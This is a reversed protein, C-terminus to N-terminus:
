LYVVTDAGIVIGERVRSAVDQAKFLANQQVLAACTTKIRTSEKVRSPKVIFRVHARKLLEKRQVSHSALIIKTM